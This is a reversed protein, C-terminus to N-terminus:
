TAGNGSLKRLKAQLEHYDDTRGEKFAIASQEEIRRYERARDIDVVPAEAKDNWGSQELLSEIREVSRYMTEPVDYRKDRDNAGSYHDNQTAWVTIHKLQSASFTKLARRILSKRKETLHSRPRKTTERWHEFVDKVEELTPGLAASDAKPTPQGDGAKAFGELWGAGKRLRKAAAGPAMEGSLLGDIIQLMSRTFALRTKEDM